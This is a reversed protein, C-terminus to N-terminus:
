AGWWSFDHGVARLQATRRDLYREEESNRTLSLCSAHAERAWEYDPLRVWSELRSSCLATAGSVRYAKLTRSLGRSTTFENPLRSRLRVKGGPPAAMTEFTPPMAGNFTVQHTTRAPLDRAQTGPAVSAALSFLLAVDWSCDVWSDMRAGQTRRPADGSEVIM